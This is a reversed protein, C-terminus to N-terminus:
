SGSEHFFSLDTNDIKDKSKPNLPDVYFILGDATVKPKHHHAM